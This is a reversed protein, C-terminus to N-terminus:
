CPIGEKEDGTDGKAIPSGTKGSRIPGTYRIGGVIEPRKSPSHGMRRPRHTVATV